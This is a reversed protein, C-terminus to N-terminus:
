KPLGSGKNSSCPIPVSQYGGNPFDQVQRTLSIYELDFGQVLFEQEPRPTTGIRVIFHGPLLGKDSPTYTRTQLRHSDRRSSHTPIVGSVYYDKCHIGVVRFPTMLSNKKAKGQKRKVQNRDDHCRTVWRFRMNGERMSQCPSICHGIMARSRGCRFSIINM